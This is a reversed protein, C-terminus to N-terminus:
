KCGSREVSSMQVCHIYESSQPMLCLDPENVPDAVVLFNSYKLIGILVQLCRWLDDICM